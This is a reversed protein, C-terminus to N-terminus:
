LTERANLIAFNILRTVPPATKMARGTCVYMYMTHQSFQVKRPHDEGWFFKGVKGCASYLKKLAVSLVIQAHHVGRHFLQLRSHLFSSANIIARPITLSKNLCIPM